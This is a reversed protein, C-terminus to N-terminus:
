GARLQGLAGLWNELHYTKVMKGDRVTQIDITMIKFSRGTHPAGFLAGAPTGSVEGRVIVRDGVVFVEKIEFRMDPISQAFGSIVKISAERDWSEGPGDGTQSRYGEAVVQDHLARVDGRTALTFMSYWPGIVARAQAESLETSQANM